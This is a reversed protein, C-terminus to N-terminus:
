LRSVRSVGIYIIFIIFFLDTGKDWKVSFNKCKLKSLLFKRNGRLSVNRHLRESLRRKVGNWYGFLFLKPQILPQYVALRM